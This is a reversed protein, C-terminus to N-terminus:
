YPLSNYTYNFMSSTIFKNHGILYSLLYGINHFLNKSIEYILKM